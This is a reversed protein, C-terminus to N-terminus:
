LEVTLEGAVVEGQVCIEGVYVSGGVGGEDNGAAPESLKEAVVARHEVNDCLESPLSLWNGGSAM